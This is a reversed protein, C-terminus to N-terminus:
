EEGGILERMLASKLYFSGNAVVEEGAKLGTKIEVTDSTREGADVIRKQFTNPATRVFVVPQGNVEQVAAAPITLVNKSERTPITVTAFMELKLRGDLNPLVCRLKATRSAPDLADSLYTIKGAFVEKPYSAVTVSCDGGRSVLAIDKEYVDALAWVSSSDVITFLEKDRGVVEGKSVDYATVVGALPARLTAHSATRHLSHGSGNWKQLDADTLGYRHLKEEARAVEAQRSSVEASAQQYEAKRLELERPSIAQVNILADARNLSQRSVAQQALARELAGRVNQYEGLSEGLEINDYILLPQDKSVRDGLQVYVQEVVGQSLPVIHAVRAEDPSVVGTTHVVQSFSKEVAAAVTVGANRQADLPVEVVNPDRPEDAAKPKARTSRWAIVAAAVLVVSVLAVFLAKNRV